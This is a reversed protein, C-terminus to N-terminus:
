TGVPCVTGTCFLRAFSGRVVSSAAARILRYPRDGGRTEMAYVIVVASPLSLCPPSVAAASATPVAEGGVSALSSDLSLATLTWCGSRLRGVDCAEPGALGVMALSVVEEEISEGGAV